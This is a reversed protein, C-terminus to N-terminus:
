GIGRLWDGEAMQIGSWDGAAVQSQKWGIGRQWRARGGALGTSGGKNGALGTSGGGPSYLGGSSRQLGQKPAFFPPNPNTLGGWLGGFWGRMHPLPGGQVGRTRRGAGHWRLENPGPALQRESGNHAPPSENVGAWHWRVALTGRSAATLVFSMQM